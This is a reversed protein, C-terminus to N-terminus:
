SLPLLLFAFFVKEPCVNEERCEDFIFSNISEQIDPHQHHLREIVKLLIGSGKKTNM